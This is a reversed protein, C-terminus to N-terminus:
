HPADGQAQDVRWGRRALAGLPMAVRGALTEPVGGGAAGGAGEEPIQGM